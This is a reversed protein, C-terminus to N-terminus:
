VADLRPAASIDLYTECTGTDLYTECAGAAVLSSFALRADPNKKLFAALQAVPWQVTETLGLVQTTLRPATGGELAVVLGEGGILAGAHADYLTEETACRVSGSCLMSVFDGLSDTADFTRWEVSLDSEGCVLARLTAPQLDAARQLRRALFLEKNGFNEADGQGRKRIFVFMMILNVLAQTAAWGISSWILDGPRTAFFLSQLGTM